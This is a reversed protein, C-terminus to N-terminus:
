KHMATALAPPNLRFLLIHNSEFGLPIHNLNLLTHVFLGAGMLLTASIAIQGIV